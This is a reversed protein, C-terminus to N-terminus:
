NYVFGAPVPHATRETLEQHAQELWVDEPLDCDPGLRQRWRRRVQSLAKRLEPTPQADSFAYQKANLEESAKQKAEEALREREREAEREAEIEARRTREAVISARVDPAFGEVPIHDFQGQDMYVVRGSNQETWQRLWKLVLERPILCGDTLPRPGWEFVETGHPNEGWRPPAGHSTWVFHNLVRQQWSRRVRQCAERVDKPCPPASFTPTCRPNNWVLWDLAALAIPEEFGDIAKCYLGILAAKEETVMGATPFAVLLSAAERRIRAPVEAAKVITLATSAQPKAPPTGKAPVLAKSNSFM